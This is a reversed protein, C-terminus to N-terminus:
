EAQSAGQYPLLSKHVVFVCKQTPARQRHTQLGDQPLALNEPRKRASFDGRFFHARAVVGMVCCSMSSADELVNIKCTLHDRVFFTYWSNKARFTRSLVLLNHAWRLHLVECTLTPCGRSPAAMAM